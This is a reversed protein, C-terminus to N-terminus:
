PLASRDPALHEEVIGLGLPRRQSRGRSRSRDNSSSAEDQEGFLEADVIELPYASEALPSQGFQIIRGNFQIGGSGSRVMEVGDTAAPPMSSVSHHTVPTMGHLLWDRRSAARESSWPPHHRQQWAQYSTPTSEFGDGTRQSPETRATSPSRRVRGPMNKFPANSMTPERPLETTPLETNSSPNRSMPQSTYGDPKLSSSFHWQSPHHPSEHSSPLSNSFGEGAYGSDQAKHRPHPRQSHVAPSLTTTSSVVIPLGPPAWQGIDTELCSESHSQSLDLRGEQSPLRWMSDGHDMAPMSSVEFVNDEFVPDEGIATDRSNLPGKHRLQPKPRTAASPNSYGRPRGSKAISMQRMDEYLTSEGHAIAIKRAQEDANDDSAVCDSANKIHTLHQGADTFVPPVPTGCRSNAQQSLTSVLPSFQGQAIERSISVRPEAVKMRTERWAGARDHYRTEALRRVTRHTEFKEQAARRRPWAAWNGMNRDEFVEPPGPITSHQPYPVHHDHPNRELTRLNTQQDPFGLPELNDIRATGDTRSDSTAVSSPISISNAREFISVHLPTDGHEDSTETAMRNSLTSFYEQIDRLRSELALEAVRLEPTLKDVQNIHDLIRRCQASYRRFDDPLGVVPNDRARDMGEDFSKCFVSAARELWFGYQNEKNLTERFFTQVVSHIKLVDLLEASRPSHHSSEPSTAGASPVDDIEDREILAFAILVTFTKNLSGKGMSDRTRVPTRKDLARLGLALLEVPIRATFFSLLYMLNLAATEGRELLKERVGKYAGLGGARPRTKYSRIYKSLPERTARLQKAAAHVALPLCDMLRVAELARSLDDKTWPKKKDMDELLMIRADEESLPGLEIKQPDNFKHNGAISSDTSTFIMSTNRTDPIYRSLGPTDRLVGDLILLWNENRNLWRRVLPIATAVNRLDSEDKFQMGARIIPSKAMKLFGDELDEKSKGRIWFIGGPYDLRHRYAYERALFSKGGGPVAWILVASTGQERRHKDMLKYHLDDLEEQRGRFTSNPRFKEPHIFLPEEIAEPMPENSAIQEYTPLSVPTSETQDKMTTLLAQDAVGQENPPGQSVRPSPGAYPTMRESAERRARARSEEEEVEWRVQIMAPADIVWQRIDTSINRYGPANPSSFKCMGGHTAEIGYYTVGPLPPSASNADVIIVKSGKVDTKHNEHAMHIHFRQYIDLFHSNINALTENEKKLTRLLVSETEFLKRPVVADSMAQLMLGWTAADSGSHPTGLFILGFTSVYISRYEDHHAARVDNSYLLARKVLIGGLSHAVWIIPNKFTGVSRRYLTLNTILTQAHQHIFNDSASQDNRKSYVDANYGYVLINAHVDKLSAPLLDRPWFVGNKTWTKDPSGNLGHVLIIDARAQPHTYVATIEYRAISPIEPGQLQPTQPSAVALPSSSGSAAHSGRFYAFSGVM